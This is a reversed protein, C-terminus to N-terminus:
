IIINPCNYEEFKLELILIIIFSLNILKTVKTFWAGCSDFLAGNEVALKNARMGTESKTHFTSLVEIMLHTHKGDTFWLPM